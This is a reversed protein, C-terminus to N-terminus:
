SLDGKKQLWLAAELSYYSVVWDAGARFISTLMELVLTREDWGAQHAMKCLAYEGSVQYAALPLGWRDRVQRVVDLYPLAPKILIVDAGESIDLEVERLAERANAPDMQYSLRNSFAPTSDVAERFPGYFVSAFKAAYSMIPINASGAGDLAARIAGVRGDMMDSPAIMDAGANAQSLATRALLKLSQDNDIIPHGKKAETVIGCHGHDMYECLCTDAIVLMEPFRKKIDRIAKQVIGNEAYAGSASSDKQDPIGFLMVAHIGRQLCKEIESPLSLLSHRYVGPMSAITEKEQINEKVFFPQILKAAGIHTERVMERFAKNERLRRMRIEPYSM